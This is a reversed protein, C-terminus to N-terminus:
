EIWGRPCISASLNVCDACAQSRQATGVMLMVSPSKGVWRCRRLDPWPTSTLLM